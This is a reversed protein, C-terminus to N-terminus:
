VGAKGKHGRRGLIRGALRGIQSRGWGVVNTLFQSASSSPTGEPLDKEPKYKEMKAIDLQQYRQECAHATSM